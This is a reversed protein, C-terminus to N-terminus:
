EILIPSKTEIDLISVKNDKYTYIAFHTPTGNKSSIKAPFGVSGNASIYGTRVELYLVESNRIAILDCFCAPSLARFIAYGKEMFWTSVKLETIAGVTGSAIDKSMRVERHRGYYLKRCEDSCLKKLHQNTGEEKGCQVCKYHFVNNITM